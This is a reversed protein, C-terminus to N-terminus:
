GNLAILAGFRGTKGREGRHSYWDDLHCATCLGANEIQHVGAQELLLRNARWLDFQVADDQSPLLDSAKEGFAEHVQDVVDQGVPYHHAAISPGIAARINEPLSGYSEEMMSITTSLIKKVTGPWGSHVVGVVSREPDHLLIPVCDAFRMFLTV